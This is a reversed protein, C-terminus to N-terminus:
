CAKLCLWEQSMARDLTTFSISFDMIFWEKARPTNRFMLPAKSLIKVRAIVAAHDFM